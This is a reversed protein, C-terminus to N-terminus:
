TTAGAEALTLTFQWTGWGDRLHWRAHSSGPGVALKHDLTAGPSLETRGLGPAGARYRKGSLWHHLQAEVAPRVARYEGSVQVVMRYPLPTM